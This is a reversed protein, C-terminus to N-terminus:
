DFYTTYVALHFMHLSMVQREVHVEERQEFLACFTDIMLIHGRHCRPVVATRQDSSSRQEECIIVCNQTVIEDFSVSDNSRAERNLVLIRASPV